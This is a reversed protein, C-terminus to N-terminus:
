SRIPLNIILIRLLSNTDYQPISISYTNTDLLRFAGEIFYERDDIQQYGIPITHLFSFDGLSTPFSVKLGNDVMQLTVHESWQLQIDNVNGGLHVWFEYKLQGNVLEYELNIYPYLNTYSILNYEDKRTAQSPDIRSFIETPPGVSFANPEVPVSGRFGLRATNRETEPRKPPFRASDIEELVRKELVQQELIVEELEMEELIRELEIGELEIGLLEGIREQYDDAQRSTLIDIKVESVGFAINIGSSQAFYRFQPDQSEFFGDTFKELPGAISSAIKGREVKIPNPRVASLIKLVNKIM